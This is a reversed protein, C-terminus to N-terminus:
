LIMWFGCVKVCLQLRKGVKLSVVKGKRAGVKEPPSTTLGPLDVLDLCPVDSRRVEVM